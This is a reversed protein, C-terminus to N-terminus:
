PHAARVAEASGDDSANDVVIVELSAERAAGALSDLCGLLLERNSTNVLSVTVDPAASM